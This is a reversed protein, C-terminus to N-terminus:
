FVSVGSSSIHVWARLATTAMPVLKAYHVAARAFRINPNIHETQVNTQASVMSNWMQVNSNPEKAIEKLLLIGLNVNLVITSTLVGGVPGLVTCVYEKM